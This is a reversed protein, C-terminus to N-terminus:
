YYVWRGYADVYYHYGWYDRRYWWYPASHHQDYAGRDLSSGQPVTVPAAARNAAAAKALEFERQAALKQASEVKDTMEKNAQEMEAKKRQLLVAVAAQSQADNRRAMQAVDTDDTLSENEIQFTTKGDTLESTVPGRSTLALLTGPDVGMVGSDTVKSVHRLVYLYGTPAKRAPTATAAAM